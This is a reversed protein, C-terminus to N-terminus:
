GFVEAVVKRLDPSAKPSLQKRAWRCKRLIELWGEETLCSAINFGEKEPHEVYLHAPLGGSWSSKRRQVLGTRISIRSRNCAEVFAFFRVMLGVTLQLPWLRTAKDGCPLYRESQLFCVALCIWSTSNLFGGFADVLGQKKSFAKALRVFRLPAPGLAEEDLLQRVWRDVGSGESDGMTLDVELRADFHLRLVPLRAAITKLVRFRRGPVAAVARLYRLQREQGHVEFQQFSMRVDLDSSMLATKQRTSGFAELQVDPTWDFPAVKFEEASLASSCITQLESLCETCTDEFDKSAVQADHVDELIKKLEFSDGSSWWDM